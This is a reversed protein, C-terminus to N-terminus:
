LEEEYQCWPCQITVNYIGGSPCSSINLTPQYEVRPKSWDYGSVHVTERRLRFEKQCQPCRM